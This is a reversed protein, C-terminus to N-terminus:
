IFQKQIALTLVKYTGTMCLAGQTRRVTTRTFWLRKVSSPGSRVVDRDLCFLDPRISCSLAIVVRPLTEARGTDLLM